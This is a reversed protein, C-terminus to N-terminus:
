DLISETAMFGYEELVVVSNMSDWTREERKRNRNLDLTKEQELTGENFSDSFDPGSPLNTRKEVRMKRLTTNAASKKYNRLRVVAMTVMVGAAMLGALALIWLTKDYLGQM